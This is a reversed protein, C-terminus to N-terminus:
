TPLLLHCEAQRFLKARGVKLMLLGSLEGKGLAIISARESQRRVADPAARTFLSSGNPPDQVLLLSIGNSLISTVMEPM